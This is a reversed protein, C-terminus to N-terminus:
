GNSLVYFINQTIHMHWLLYRKIKPYVYEGNVLQKNAHVNYCIPEKTTM